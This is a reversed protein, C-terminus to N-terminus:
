TAGDEAFELWGNSDTLLREPHDTFDHTSGFVREAQDAREPQWVWCGGLPGRHNGPADLDYKRGESIFIARRLVLAAESADSDDLTSAWNTFGKGLSLGAMEEPAVLHNDEFQWELCPEGDRKLAAQQPLENKFDAIAALYKRRSQRRAMAAIALGALDILHTCQQRADTHQLVSYSYLSLETRVLKQIQNAASPCLITPHRLADGSIKEVKGDKALVEVRFHHFDDELAARAAGANHSSMRTHIDIRRWLKGM